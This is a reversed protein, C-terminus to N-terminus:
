GGHDKEHLQKDKVIAASTGIIKGKEIQHTAINIANAIGEDSELVRVIQKITLIVEVNMVNKKM